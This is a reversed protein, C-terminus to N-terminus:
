ARKLRQILADAQGNERAWEIIKGLKDGAGLGAGLGAPAADDLFSLDGDTGGGAQLGAFLRAFDLPLGGPAAPGSAAKRDRYQHAATGSPKVERLAAELDTARLPRPQIDELGEEEQRVADMVPGYGAQHVLERLDSGSFGETQVAIAALPSFPGPVLLAKDVYKGALIVRLINERQPKDPLGVEVCASFRRLVAEDLEWPRNTAGLVKVQDFGTTLMGDWLTMFETKMTHTAEHEMSHRRGLLSDIEDVFIISPQLKMALTFVATTLKQAEGFWKSQLTAARVNIFCAGSERAIAKALMTKGTGPPGMLLVGKSPSLLDRQMRFLDPRLLPLIFHQTLTAKQEALGGVDDLGVPIHDPNIVDLAVIDEYQNTDPFTRNLRKQIEKKREKAARQVGANPDIKKLMWNFFVAGGLLSVAMYVVDVVLRQQDIQGGRGAGGKLGM